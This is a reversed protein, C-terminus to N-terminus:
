YGKGIYMGVYYFLFLFLLILLRSCLERHVVALYKCDITLGGLSEEFFDIIKLTEKRGIMRVLDDAYLKKSYINEVGGEEFEIWSEHKEEMGDYSATGVSIDVGSAIDAKLSLELDKILADCSSKSILGYM